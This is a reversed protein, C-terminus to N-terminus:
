QEVVMSVGCASEPGVSVGHGVGKIARCVMSVAVGFDLVKVLGHGVGGIARCGDLGVGYGQM